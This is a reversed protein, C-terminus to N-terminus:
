KDQKLILSTNAKKGDMGMNAGQTNTATSQFAEVKFVQSELRKAITCAFDINRSDATGYFGQIGSGPRNGLAGQLPSLGLTHSRYWDLYRQWSGHSDDIRCM